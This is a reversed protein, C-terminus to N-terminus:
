NYQARSKEDEAGTTRSRSTKLRDKGFNRVYTLNFTRWSFRLHFNSVLNQGPLDTYARLDSSNLINNVTFSLADKTGLKKRAGFDLSGSSKFLLIGNASPSQYYGSLEISFDKPLTFSQTMNIRIDKQEIQVKEKKYLANVQHWTGTVNYQMTWWKTVTLPISLVVSVLKQNELNEPTYITINSSSDVNPQFGTIANDEKTYSLSIFYKKYSYGATVAHALAPQLGPNGTLVTNRNFYYTFPALNSFTPRTIRTSYSLSITTKENLKHSLFASPFLRGYHRDVINKVSETGLNSNTYEYRLGGKLSTKKSAAVNLSVYAASYSEKLTYIHSLSSDETWNSQALREFSGDNEFDAITGKIGTEMNIKASLKKSYDIAGVWFHLPTVKGSRTREDYIFGGTSDYYRTYYNVPQDNKYRLYYGNFSVRGDKAFDHQLNLNIGYDQWNNLESNAATLSTDLKGNLYFSGNNHESQRFWRGNSTLLIGIVTHTTAQYDVGVRANHQRTTDNRDVNGYVEYIDGNNSIRSYSTVPFLSKVRSYSLDGFINIKGERHNFNLNAQTVWGKGYGLTGSFSGNTGVNDNQKLVINIYGAKGEADLSAPPTTILEIKEINGASMGDLMQVVASAPMYSMKGNIMINVGEKGLIAITSNQRNVVVGPSRELIQLATNGAATISNAVNVVLRDIKQELLPKKASVTVEGLSTFTETLMLPAVTVIKNNEDVVLHESYIRTHGIFAVMILYRGGFVNSFSYNGDKESISAKVLSSDGSQLLMVNAQPLPKNNLDVVRGQVVSQAHMNILSFSAFFFVITTPRLRGAFLKM